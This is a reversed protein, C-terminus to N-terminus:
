DDLLDEQIYSGSMMLFNYLNNYSSFLTTIDKKESIAYAEDNDNLVLSKGTIDKIVQKLLDIYNYNGSKIALIAAFNFKAPISHYATDDNGFRHTYYICPLVLEDERYVFPRFWEFNFYEKSHNSIHIM